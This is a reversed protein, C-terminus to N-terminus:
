FDYWFLQCRTSSAVMQLIVPNVIMKLIKKKKKKERSVCCPFQFSWPFSRSIGRSVFIRPISDIVSGAVPSLVMWRAIERYPVLNIGVLYEILHRIVTLCLVLIVPSHNRVDPYGIFISCTDPILTYTCIHTRARARAHRNYKYIHIYVYVKSVHLTLTHVRKMISSIKIM